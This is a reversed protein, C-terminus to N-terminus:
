HLFLKIVPAFYFIVVVVIITAIIIFSLPVYFGPSILSACPLQEGSVLQRAAQGQAAIPEEWGVGGRIPRETTPFIRKADQTLQGSQARGAGLKKHLEGSASCSVSLLGQSLTLMVKAVALVDTLFM